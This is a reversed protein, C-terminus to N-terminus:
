EVETELKGLQNIQAHYAHIDHEYLSDLFDHMAECNCELLNNCGCTSDCMCPTM